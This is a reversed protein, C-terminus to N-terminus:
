PFIRSLTYLSNKYTEHLRRSLRGRYRMVLRGTLSLTGLYPVIERRRVDRNAGVMRDYSSASIQGKHRRWLVGPVPLIRIAYGQRTFKLFLQWDEFWRNYTGFADLSRLVEIDFVTGPGSRFPNGCCALIHFQRRASLRNMFRYSDTFGSLRGEDSYYETVETRFIKGPHDSLARLLVPFFEPNQILDDGGLYLGWTGRALSFAQTHARSIGVNEALFFTQVGWFLGHHRALWGRVLEPTADQSGDDVVVLEVQSLGDLGLLSDLTETVTGSSQYTIVALTIPPRLAM